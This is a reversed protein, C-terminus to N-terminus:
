RLKKQKKEPPSLDLVQQHLKAKEAKLQAIEADKALIKGQLEQILRDKELLIAKKKERSLAASMRNQIRRRRKAEEESIPPASAPAPTSERGRKVSKRPAVAMSDEDGATESSKITALGIEATKHTGNARSKRTKGKPPVSSSLLQAAISSVASSTVVSDPNIPPVESAAADASSSSSMFDWTFRSPTRPQANLPSNLPWSSPSKLYAKMAEESRKRADITAQSNPNPYVRPAAIPSLSVLISQPLTSWARPSDPSDIVPSSM